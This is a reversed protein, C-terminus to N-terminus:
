HNNQPQCFHLVNRNDHNSKATMLTTTITTLM